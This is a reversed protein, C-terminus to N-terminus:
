LEFDPAVAGPAPKGFCNVPIITNEHIPIPSRIVAASGGAAEAAEDASAEYQYVQTGTTKNQGSIMDNVQINNGFWPPTGESPPYAYSSPSFRRLRLKVSSVPHSKRFAKANLSFYSQFYWGGPVAFGNSVVGACDGSSSIETYGIPAYGDGGPTVWAAGGANWHCENPKLDCGGLVFIQSTWNAIFETTLDVVFFFFLAKEVPVVFKLLKNSIDKSDPSISKNILARM